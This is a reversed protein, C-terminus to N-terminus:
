PPTIASHTKAEAALKSNNRRTARRHKSNM